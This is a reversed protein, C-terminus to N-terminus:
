TGMKVNAIQLEKKEIIASKPIVTINSYKDDKGDITGALIIRDIHDFVLYGITKVIQWDCAMSKIEEKTYWETYMASDDWKIQLLKAM